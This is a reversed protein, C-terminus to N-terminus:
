SIIRAHSHEYIDEERLQSITGRAFGLAQLPFLLQVLLDPQARQREAFHQIDWTKKKANFAMMVNFLRVFAGM